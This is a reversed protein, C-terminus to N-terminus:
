SSQGFWEFLDNELEEVLDLEILEQIRFRVLDTLINTKQVVQEITFKDLDHCARDISHETHLHLHTFKSM